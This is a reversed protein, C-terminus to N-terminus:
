LERDSGSRPELRRYNCCRPVDVAWDQKLGRGTEIRAIRAQLVFDERTRACPRLCYVC